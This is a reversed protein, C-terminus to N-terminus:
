APRHAELAVWDGEDPRGDVVLGPPRSPRGSRRRATSSSGRRSWRRRRAAARRPAPRGAARPRRRDPQRRRCRVAPRREAPQGVRARIRRAIGNRKANAATAEIAIPDIDVGVARAAGLRIAAIALIGSGCGVDLVRAGTSRTAETRSRRSCRSACGRRRTSAPGSRWARTSRWSWSTRRRGQPPAVDPPHGAPPRGAAGPLVGELRRGLRGRPRGADPARRDAAARLGPPPRARRRGIGGRGRGGRRDRAPLYARVTAPRTPDVRAGLGEEVLDFAPEVVVGGPAARGLIESVAEVAEVDAEVSLELWAGTGTRARREGWGSSRASRRRHRRVTRAARPPAARDLLERQRKTLKTPVVVDVLVHLDGRSGARRLHPVGKGRLRIETDPQTGPKIEVEEEGDVTPVKIKTGLAAQAISVDAEFYLETGDRRLTPHPPSTSPSTCAARRDAARGSRARTRLAPDPPGRRHRGPDDGPADAQARDPRRGQLDRLADRRDQGRGPLAPLDVVNVMQGLMTQRVSRVEGRGNCQPCTIPETGEKAGTGHCTECRSSRRPVRDGERHGPGGGRVHDAPRLAPGRRAAPPRAAGRRRAQGGGFFADFIDAFGGFGEFGARRRGGDVGARGFLTTASAGSRTPCSRTPRTSRRSASRPPRTRHQRGPAM